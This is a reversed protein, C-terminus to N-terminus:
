VRGGENKPYPLIPYKLAKLMKRKESKSGLFMIYRHKATRIVRDSYDVTEKDYHRSHKAGCNIDTREKSKGTYIFNTAQYVIGLHAQGSDAYSVIIRPRPLLKLSQSILFSAENKRNHKLCLRNLELVNKSYEVGCIGRVLTNSASTGYTIIGILGGSTCLSMQEESENTDFLGFSYSISPIRHAYHINLIYDLTEERSIQRVSYRELHRGGKEDASITAFQFLM